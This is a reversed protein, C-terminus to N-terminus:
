TKARRLGVRFITAKKSLGLRIGQLADNAQGTRLTKEQKVFASYGHQDCLAMGLNSPLLLPQIEAPLHDDFPSAAFVDQYDKDDDSADSEDGIPDRIIEPGQLRFEEADPQWFQAAQKQYADIRAQLNKKKGAEELAESTSPRKGLWRIVSSLTLRGETMMKSVFLHEVM